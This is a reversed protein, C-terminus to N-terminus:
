GEVCSCSGNNAKRVHCNPCVPNRKNSYGGSMQREAIADLVFEPLKNRGGPFNGERDLQDVANRVYPKM